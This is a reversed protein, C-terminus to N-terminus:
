PGPAAGATSKPRWRVFWGVGRRSIIYNESRLRRLANRVVPRSVLFAACLDSESPLGVFDKLTGRHIKDAISRFIADELTMARDGRFQRIGGPECLALASAAIALHEDRGTEGLIMDESRM